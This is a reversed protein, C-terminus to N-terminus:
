AKGAQRRVRLLREWRGIGHELERVKRQDDMCYFGVHRRVLGLVAVIAEIQSASYLAMEPAKLKRTLHRLVHVAPTDGVLRSALHREDVLYGLYAPLYYHVGIPTMSLFPFDQSIESSFPDVDRVHRGAFYREMGESDPPRHELAGLAPPPPEDPWAASIQARIARMALPDPLPVTM